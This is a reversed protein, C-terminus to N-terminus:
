WAFASAPDTWFHNICGWCCFYIPQGFKHVVRPTQMDVVLKEGSFRRLGAPDIKPRARNPSFFCRGDASAPSLPCQVTTNRLDPLGRAGDPMPLLGQEPTADTPALWFARPDQGYSQADEKTAFYLAQGNFLGLPYMDSTNLKKGSVPCIAVDRPGPPPQGLAGVLLTALSALLLKM